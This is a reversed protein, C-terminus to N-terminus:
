RKCINVIEDENNNELYIKSLEFIEKWYTEHIKGNSTFIFRLSKDLDFYHNSHTMNGNRIHDTVLDEYNITQSTSSTSILYNLLRISTKNYIGENQYYEM